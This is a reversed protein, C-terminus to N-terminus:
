KGSSGAVAAIVNSVLRAIVQAGLGTPDKEPVFEVFDVGIIRARDAAGHILDLMQQYDLGGFAPLVVGPVLTPDIGDVDISLIVASDNPVAQLIPALGHQHIRRASFIRAGWACADQYEEARASGPGRAGVQVLNVIHNMESARRMTSSFGHTEGMSKMAGILILM